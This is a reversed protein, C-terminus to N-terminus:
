RGVGHRPNHGHRHLGLRNSAEIFADVLAYQELEDCQEALRRAAYYQAPTTAAALAVLVGEAVKGQSTPYPM